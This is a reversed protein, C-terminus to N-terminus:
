MMLAGGNVDLCAGTVYGSLDSALFLCCGAVEDVDGIRGLPISSEVSKRTEMEEIRKVIRESNIVGPCIANVRINFPALQRAMHRTLGLLGAKASTYHCGATVSTSRGAISSLNVIVGGSQEKFHRAAKQSLFFASTLNLDVVSNWEDTTIEFIDTPLGGGANNVLIQFPSNTEFIKKFLRNRDDEKTLDAGIAIANKGTAAAIDSALVKLEQERCDVLILDAGQAAFLHSCAKGIGAAAGTILARKRRILAAGELCNWIFPQL